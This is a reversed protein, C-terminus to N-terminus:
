ADPSTPSTTLRPGAVLVGTTALTILRRPSGIVSGTRRVVPVASYATTSTSSSFFKFTRTDRSRKAAMALADGSLHGPRVLSDNRRGRHPRPWVGGLLCAWAAHDARQRKFGDRMDDAGCRWM